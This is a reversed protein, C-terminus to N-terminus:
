AAEDLVFLLFAVGQPTIVEQPFVLNAGQLTSLGRKNLDTIVQQVLDEKGRFERVYQDLIEQYTNGQPLRGDNATAIQTVGKWFFHLIKIHSPTFEDILQLYIHQLDEDSCRGLGINVL